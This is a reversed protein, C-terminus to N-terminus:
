DRDPEGGQNTGCSGGEYHAVAALVRNILLKVQSFYDGIEDGRQEKSRQRRRWRASM